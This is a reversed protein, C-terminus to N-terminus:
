KNINPNQRWILFELTMSKEDYRRKTLHMMTANKWSSTKICFLQISTKKSKWKKFNIKMKIDNKQFQTSKM